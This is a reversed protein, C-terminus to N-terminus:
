RVIFKITSISNVNLYYVGTPWSNIIEIEKTEYYKKEFVQQGILNFVKVEIKDRKSDMLLTFRGSNPNPFLHITTQNYQNIDLNQFYCDGGNMGTNYEGLISDSYCRLASGNPDCVELMPYFTDINGIGEIVLGSFDAITSSLSTLRLSKKNNGNINTQFVSDVLLVITDFPECNDAPIYLTDGQEAGFDYLLSFTSDCTNLRFVKKNIQKILSNEGIACNVRGEIYTLTDGNFISDGLSKLITYSVIDPNYTPAHYVWETNETFYNQAKIKHFCALVLIALVLLRTKM